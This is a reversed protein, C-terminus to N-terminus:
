RLRRASDVAVEPAIPDYRTRAARRGGGRHPPEVTLELTDGEMRWGLRAFAYEHV